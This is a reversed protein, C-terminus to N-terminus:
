KKQRQWTVVKIERNRRLILPPFLLIAGCGVRENVTDSDTIHWGKKTMKKVGKTYKKANDYKAVKTEIM